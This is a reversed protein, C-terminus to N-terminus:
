GGLNDLMDSVSGVTEVEGDAGSPVDPRGLVTYGRLTENWAAPLDSVVRFMEQRSIPSTGGANGFVIHPVVTESAGGGPNRRMEARAVDEEFDIHLDRRLMEKWATEIEEVTVDADNIIIGDRLSGHSFSGDPKYVLRSTSKRDVGPMDFVIDFAYSEGIPSIEVDSVAGMERFTDLVGDIVAPRDSM